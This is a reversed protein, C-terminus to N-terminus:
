PSAPGFFALASHHFGFGAVGFVRRRKKEPAARRHQNRTRELSMGAGRGTWTAVACAYLHRIMRVGDTNGNTFTKYILAFAAASRALSGASAWRRNELIDPAAHPM